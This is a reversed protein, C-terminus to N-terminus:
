GSTGRCPSRATRTSSAASRGTRPACPSTSRASRTRRREPLIEPTSLFMIGLNQALYRPDEASWEPHYDLAVYARAELQYLHDYAPHFVQGPSRSTTPSCPASPSRRGSARRGAAAGGAGAPGSSSSSRPRSWRRCGPPPRWGSCCAWSSSAAISPSVTGPPDRRLGTRPAMAEAPGHACRRDAEGLGPEDAESAPDARIALGVALMALGVAVIHAQYWTTALQATYWFVTGFAFFLTTALRVVPQIRLGGLMWWCIAVDLAALITFITQDDAPLGWAAVFPVLFLAPLPPFPILGRPVGDSSTVPLM